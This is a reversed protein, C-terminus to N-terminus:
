KKKNLVIMVNHEKQKNSIGMLHRFRNSLQATTFDKFEEGHHEKIDGWATNYKNALEILRITQNYTFKPTRFSKRKKNVKPAGFKKKTKRINGVPEEGSESRDESKDKKRRKITKTDEGNSRKRRGVASISSGKEEEDKNISREKSM